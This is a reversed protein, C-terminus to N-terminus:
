RLAQCIAATDAVWGYFTAVNHETADQIFKPGAPLTADNALVAFYNLHYAARITSEVGVNCAIGCVIVTRIDRGRLDSDLSTGAFGSDRSKEVVLDGPQPTLADIFEYDWTGHTLIQGAMDPHARMYQLANSKHFIPAGPPAEHQDPAFGNKLNVVLVGARRAAGCLRSVNHIVAPAEAVSFGIRELYGGPSCFANQMDNVILATRATAFRLNQPRAKLEIDTM